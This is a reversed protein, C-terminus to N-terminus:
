SRHSPVSSPKTPLSSPLSRRTRLQRGIREDAGTGPPTARYSAGRVSLAAKKKPTKDKKAKAKKGKRKKKAGEDDSDEEMETDSGEEVEGATLEALAEGYREIEAEIFGACRAQLEDSCELHLDALRGNPDREPTTLAASFM